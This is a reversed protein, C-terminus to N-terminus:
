ATAKGGLRVWLEGEHKAADVSDHSEHLPSFGCGPYWKKLEVCGDGHDEITAWYKKHDGHHTVGHFPTTWERCNMKM